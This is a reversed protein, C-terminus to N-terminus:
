DAIVKLKVKGYLTQPPTADTASNISIEYTTGAVGGSVSFQVAEAAPVSIGNIELIATSVAKNSITIGAVDPITPTGTLLEGSDLKGSFSVAANRVESVKKTQIQPATL